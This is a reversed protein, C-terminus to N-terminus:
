QSISGATEVFLERKDSLALRSHTSYVVLKGDAAAAEFINSVLEQGNHDLATLPEDLLWVDAKDLCWRAM